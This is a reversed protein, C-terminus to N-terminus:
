RYLIAQTEVWSVLYQKLFPGSTRYPVDILRGGRALVRKHALEVRYHDAVINKHIKGVRDADTNDAGAAARRRLVNKYCQEISTDIFANMYRAGYEEHLFEGMQGWSHALLLGEFCVIGKHDGREDHTKRACRDVLAIVEEIKSIRDCGGTGEKDYPGVVYFPYGMWNGKNILTKSGRTTQQTVVPKCYALEMLYRMLTTKGGGSTARIQLIV